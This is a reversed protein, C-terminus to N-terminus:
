LKRKTTFTGKQTDNEWNGKIVDENKRYKITEGTFKWKDVVTGLITGGEVYLNGYMSNVSTVGEQKVLGGVLSGKTLFNFTGKEDGEYTGVFCRVLETSTEKFIFTEIPTSIDELFLDSISPNKGNSQVSFSFFNRGSEFNLKTIYTNGDVKEIETTKFRYEKDDIVLLASTITDKHKLKIELYGTSGVLIGKYVGTSREDNIKEAVPNALLSPEPIIPIVEDKSCSILLILLTFFYIVKKM